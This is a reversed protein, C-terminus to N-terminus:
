GLLDLAGTLPAYGVETDDYPRLCRHVARSVALQPGTRASVRAVALRPVTRPEVDLNARLPLWRAGRARCATEGLYWLACDFVPDDALRPLDPSWPLHEERYLLVSLEPGLGLVRVRERLAAELVVLSGASFDLAAGPGAARAWLPFADARVALWEALAEGVPGPDLPGPAGPLPRGDLHGAPRARAAALARDVLEAWPAYQELAATLRGAPGAGAAHALQGLPDVLPFDDECLEEAEALEAREAEDLLERPLRLLPDTRHHPAPEPSRAWRAGYNRVHVEGLYWAAVTLFPEDRADLATAADRYRRRVERELRPLSAVEFDWRGPLAAAWAPFAARAAALWGNLRPNDRCAPGDIWADGDGDENGNGNGDADHEDAADHDPADDDLPRPDGTATM